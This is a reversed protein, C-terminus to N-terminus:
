KGSAMTQVAQDAVSGSRRAQHFEPFEFAYVETLNSMKAVYELEHCSIQTRSIRPKKLKPFAMAVIALDDDNIRTNGLYLEELNKLTTRQSLGEGTM